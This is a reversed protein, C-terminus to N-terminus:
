ATHAISTLDGSSAFSKEELRQTWVPEPFKDIRRYLPYRPNKGRPYLAAPAGDLGSTSFSSNYRREGLRRWSTYRSKNKIVSLLFKLFIQNPEQNLYISHTRYGTIPGVPENLQLMTNTVKVKEGGAGV